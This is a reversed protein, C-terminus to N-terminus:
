NRKPPESALVGDLTLPELRKKMQEVKEPPVGHLNSYNGTARHFSVPISLEQAMLVYPKAEWKMTNTNDVIVSKGAALAEKCKLQAKAHNIGLKTPDFRYVGNEHFEDDTSVIVVDHGLSRLLPALHDRGLTSKGSGSHGQLVVLIQNM